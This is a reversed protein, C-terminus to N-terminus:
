FVAPIGQVGAAGKDDVKTLYRMRRRIITRLRWVLTGLARLGRRMLACYPRLFAVAFWVPDNNLRNLMYITLYASFEYPMVRPRPAGM